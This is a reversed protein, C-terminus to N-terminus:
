LALVSRKEFSLTHSVSFDTAPDRSIVELLVFVSKNYVTQSRHTNVVGICVPKMCVFCFNVFFFFVFKVCLCRRLWCSDFSFGFRFFSRVIFYLVFIEFVMCIFCVVFVDVIFLVVSRTTYIRHFFFFIFYISQVSRCACM